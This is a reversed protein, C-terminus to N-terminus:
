GCCGDQEFQRKILKGAISVPEIGMADCFQVETWKDIKFVCKECAKVLNTPNELLSGYAKINFSNPGYKFVEFTEQVDKKCFECIM